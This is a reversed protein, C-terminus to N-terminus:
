HATLDTTQTILGDSGVNFYWTSVTTHGRQTTYAEITYHATGDPEKYGGTYVYRTIREGAAKQQNLSSQLQPRTMGLSRQGAADCASWVGAADFRQWARLYRQVSVPLSPRGPQEVQVIPAQAGLGAIRTAAFIAGGVILALLAVAVVTRAVRSRGRMADAALSVGLLTKRIPWKAAEWILTRLPVGAGRWMPRQHGLPMPMTPLSTDDVPAFSPDASAVLAGPSAPQASADLSDRPEPRQEPSLTQGM